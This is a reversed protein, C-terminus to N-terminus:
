KTEWYSLAEKLNEISVPKVLVDNVGADECKQLEEGFRNATIALIPFNAGKGEPSNQRIAQTLAYGDMKPMHCDTLILVPMPKEGQCASIWYALAVEGDTCDTVDYGIKQLQRRLVKRNVPDDEVLLIMKQHM